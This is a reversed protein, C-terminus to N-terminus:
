EGMKDYYYVKYVAGGLGFVFWVIVTSRLDALLNFCTIGVLLMATASAVTGCVLTNKLSKTIVTAACVRQLILVAAVGLLLVSIIGGVASFGAWFSNATQTLSFAPDFYKNALPLIAKSNVINLLVAFIPPLTVAASLLSGVPAKYANAIFVFLATAM